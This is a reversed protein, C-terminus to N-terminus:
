LKTTKLLEFGSKFLRLFHRPNRVRSLARLIYSPRFYFERHAKKLLKALDEKSLYKTEYVPHEGISFYKSRDADFVGEAVAMKYIETDPYPTMVNFHAIDPNLKKAFKISALVTDRTEDPAGFVWFTRM